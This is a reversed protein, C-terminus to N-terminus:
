TSELSRKGQFGGSHLIYGECCAQGKLQPTHTNLPVHHIHFSASRSPLSRDFHACTVDSSFFQLETDYGLPLRTTGRGSPSTTLSTPFSSPPSSPLPNSYHLSLLLLNMLHTVEFSHVKRIEGRGGSGAMTRLGRKQAAQRM